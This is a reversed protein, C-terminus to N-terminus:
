GRLTVTDDYAEFPVSSDRVIISQVHAVHKVVHFPNGKNDFEVFQLSEIQEVWCNSLTFEGKQFTKGASNDFGIGIINEEGYYEICRLFVDRDM